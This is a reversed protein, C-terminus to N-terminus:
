RILEFFRNVDKLDALVRGPNATELEEYTCGGTAVSIARARCKEAATIDHITDGIIVIDTPPFDLAYYARAKCIGAEIMQYREMPVESFGGVPFYHNLDFRELKIRAGIEINGTGLANFIDDREATQKLIEAVGPLLESQGSRLITRLEECYVSLFEHLRGFDIKYKTFAHQITNLDMSGALYVHSFVDTAGFLQEFAHNMAKRGSGGRILTGDIDWM